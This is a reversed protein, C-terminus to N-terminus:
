LILLDSQGVAHANISDNKMEVWISLDKLPEKLSASISRSEQRLLRPQLLRM